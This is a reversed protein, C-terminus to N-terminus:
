QTFVLIENVGDDCYLPDFTELAKTLAGRLREPSLVINAADCIRGLEKVADSQDYLKPRAMGAQYMIHLLGIAAFPLAHKKKPNPLEEKKTRAFEALEYMAWRISSYHGSRDIDPEKTGDDRIRGPQPQNFAEEIDWYTDADMMKITEDLKNALAELAKAEPTPSWTSGHIQKVRDILKAISQEYDLM